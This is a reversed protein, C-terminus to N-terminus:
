KGHALDPLAAQGGGIVRHYLDLMAATVGRLRELRPILVLLM